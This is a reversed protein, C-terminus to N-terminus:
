ISQSLACDLKREEIGDHQRFKQHCLEIRVHYLRHRLFGVSLKTKFSAHIAQLAKNAREKRPDNHMAPHPPPPPPVDWVGGAVLGTGVTVDSDGEESVAPAVVCVSVM